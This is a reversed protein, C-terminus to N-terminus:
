RSESEVSWPESKDLPRKVLVIEHCALSFTNTHRHMAAVAINFSKPRPIPSLRLQGPLLRLLPAPLIISHPSPRLLFSPSIRCNLASTSRFNDFQASYLIQFNLSESFASNGRNQASSV